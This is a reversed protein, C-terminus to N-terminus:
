QAGGANSTARFRFLDSGAIRVLLARVDGRDANRFGQQIQQVQANERHSELRGLAYRLWWASYCDHAEDSSALAQGLEVANTFSLPTGRATLFTGSADVARM